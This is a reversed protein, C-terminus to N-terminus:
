VQGTAIASMLAAYSAPFTSVHRHAIPGYVAVNGSNMGIGLALVHINEPAPASVAISKSACDSVIAITLPLTCALRVNRAFFPSIGTM